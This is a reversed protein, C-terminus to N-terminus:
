WHGDLRTKWSHVGKGKITHAIVVKPQKTESAKLASFLQILADIDHGNVEHAEWGFAAFKGALTGSACM